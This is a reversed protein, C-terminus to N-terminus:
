PAHRTAWNFLEYLRDPYIAFYVLAAVPVMPLLWDRM